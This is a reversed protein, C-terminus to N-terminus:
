GLALTMAIMIFAALAFFIAGLLKAEDEKKTRHYSAEGEPYFEGKEIKKLCREMGRAFFFPYGIWIALIIELYISITTTNRLQRMIEPVFFYVIAMAIALFIVQIFGKEKRIVVTPTYYVDIVDGKSGFPYQMYRKKGEIYVELLRITKVGIDDFTVIIVRQIEVTATKFKFFPNVRILYPMVGLPFFVFLLQSMM